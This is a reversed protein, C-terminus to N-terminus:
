GRPSGKKRQNEASVVRKVTWKGVDLIQGVSDYTRELSAGPQKRRFALFKELILSESVCSEIRGRGKGDIVFLARGHTTKRKGRKNHGGEIAGDYSKKGIRVLRSTGDVEARWADAEIQIERMATSCYGIRAPKGIIPWWAAKLKASLNGVAESAQQYVDQLDADKKRQRATRPGTPQAPEYQVLANSLRVVAKRAEEPTAAVEDRYDWWPMSITGDDEKKM